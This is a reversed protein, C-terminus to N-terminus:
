KLQKDIEELVKEVTAEKIVTDNVKVYPAKSFEWDISCLGLCPSGAVDVKDGYKKPVLDILEQLNSSGMVFCTTGLCVKVNVKAM